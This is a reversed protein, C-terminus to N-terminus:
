HLRAVCDVRTAKIDGADIAAQEDDMSTEALDPFFYPGRAFQARAVSQLDPIEERERFGNRTTSSTSPKM